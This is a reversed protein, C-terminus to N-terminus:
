IVCDMPGKHFIARRLEVSLALRIDEHFWLWAKTCAGRAVRSNM